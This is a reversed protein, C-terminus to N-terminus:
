DFGPLRDVGASGGARRLDNVHNHAQRTLEPLRYRSTEALVLEAASDLDCLHGPSVFLPSVRDRTRLVWGVQEGRHILPSRDGRRPGPDDYEGCLLSKACGVTPIGLWLGLHCAVGLRRPHAIGQGDCLIADPRTELKAFAHLIAPSERFSLLGPVYPFSAPASVGVREIISGARGVVVAAFLVPSFKDYSVDAAAVTERPGLPRKTDVRVALEAQLRRAEAPPLNWDHLHAFRM